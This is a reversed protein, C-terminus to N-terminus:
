SNHPIGSAKLLSQLKGSSIWQFLDSNGGIHTEAIFINPFTNQGSLEFLAAKINDGEAIQDLEVSHYQLGLQVLNKKAMSCHPCWTKSYILVKHKAIEDKVRQSFVNSFGRYLKIM